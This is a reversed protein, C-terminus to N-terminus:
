SYLNKWKLAEQLRRQSDLMSVDGTGFGIAITEYNGEPYAIKYLSVMVIKKILGVEM